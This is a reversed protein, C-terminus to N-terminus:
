LLRELNSAISGKYKDLISADEALGQFKVISEDLRGIWYSAIATQFELSVRFDYGTDAPL